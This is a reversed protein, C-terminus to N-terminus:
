KFLSRRKKNRYYNEFQEDTMDSNLIRSILKNDIMDEKYDMIESARDYEGFKIEWREKQNIPDSLNIPWEWRNLECWWKALMRHDQENIIKKDQKTM